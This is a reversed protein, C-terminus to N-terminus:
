RERIEGGRRGLKRGREKNRITNRASSHTIGELPKNPSSSQILLHREGFQLIELSRARQHYCTSEGREIQKSKNGKKNTERTCLWWAASVDFQVRVRILQLDVWSVTLHDISVPHHDIQIVMIVIKQDWICCMISSPCNIPRDQIHIRYEVGTKKTLWPQQLYWIM